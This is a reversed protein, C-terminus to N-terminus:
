NAVSSGKRKTDVDTPRKPASSDVVAYCRVQFGPLRGLQYRLARSGDRFHEGCDVKYMSGHCMQFADSHKIKNDKEMTFLKLLSRANDPNKAIFTQM